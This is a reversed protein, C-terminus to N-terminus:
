EKCIISNLSVAGATNDGEAVLDVHVLQLGADKDAVAAAAARVAHDEVVDAKLRHKLKSGPREEKKKMM